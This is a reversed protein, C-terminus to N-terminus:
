QEVTLCLTGATPTSHFEVGFLNCPTLDMGFATEDVTAEAVPKGDNIIQVVATGFHHEPHFGIWLRCKEYSGPAIWFLLRGEAHSGFSLGHSFEREGEPFRLKLPIKKGQRNLAYNRVFSSFRYPYYGGFPFLQPEMETLPLHPLEGEQLCTAIVDACLKVANDFMRQVQSANKTMVFQFMAKRSDAVRSVYAAYLRM